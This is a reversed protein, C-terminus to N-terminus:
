SEGRSGLKSKFYAVNFLYNKNNPKIAGAQENYANAKEYDGLKDYIVCLQMLPIFGGYDRNVFAGSREDEHIALAASYWYVASNYDSKGIFYGGLLCCVSSKPPAFTFSKLLSEVAKGNNGLATYASYLNVCAECKNEVWGGGTLFNELVAISERYMGHYLLERGYYFKEREDLCIGADIRKQFINLNRMTAGSKVKMHYVQADSYLIRGRPEVAEHVAGRFLYGMSRRFIRERYYVFTPVGDDFAAAYSLYAMDYDKMVDKLKNIKSCNEDTVVDDADLWMVLDCGAKGLAFNRAASFDDCWRFDFIKDTYEAAIKKTADASGTDAIIIEDAFKKVCSLCRGLVQEEDRVILCVSLTMIIGKATICKIGGDTSKTIFFRGHIM